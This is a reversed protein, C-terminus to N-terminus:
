SVAKLDKVDFLINSKMCTSSTSVTAVACATKLLCINNGALHFSTATAPPSVITSQTTNNATATLKKSNDQKEPGSNSTYLCVLTINTTVSVANISQNAYMSKKNAWIYM